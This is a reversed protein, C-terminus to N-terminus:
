LLSDESRRQYLDYALYASSFACIGLAVYKYIKGVMHWASKSGSVAETEKGSLAKIITNM